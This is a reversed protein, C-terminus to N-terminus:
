LRFVLLNGVTRYPKDRLYTQLEEIKRLKDKDVLLVTGSYKGTLIEEPAIKVVPVGLFVEMGGPRRIGCSYYQTNGEPSLAIAVSAVERFGIRNNVQPITWGAISVFLLLGFAIWGAPRLLRRFRILLYVAYGNCLVGACWGTIILPKLPQLWAYEPNTILWLYVPLAAIIILAPLYLGAALSATYNSKKMVWVTLLLLFPIVPLLYIALKSSILSLVTFQSVCIICFFQLRDDTFLKRRIGTWAAILILITWPAVAYLLAKLHFYVPEKHHFADVARNVTQNFTLNYLYSTGKELWVLSFWLMFAALLGAIQKWGLYRSSTRLKGKMILFTLMSVLPLLLGLSGKTFIAMFLWLVLLWSEYPSNTGSYIKYFSYLALIMFLCMLMDMRVFLAPGIFLATTM